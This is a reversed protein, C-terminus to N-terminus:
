SKFYNYVEIRGLVKVAPLCFTYPQLEVSALSIKLPFCQFFWLRSKAEEKIDNIFRPLFQTLMDPHKITITVNQPKISKWDLM